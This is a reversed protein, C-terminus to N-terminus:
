SEETEGAPAETEATEEAEALDAEAVEEEADGAEEAEKAPVIGAAVNAQEVADEESRAVNATIGVIVEPHLALKVQHLGLTKIPKDLRVQSRSLTCGEETVAVAIDRANVSGYLQGVDSAARVLIVSTDRIKDAVARAEEKRHLNDAQLQAKQTEFYALNDKSARLAKGKPLLFNRAYGPKVSVVDGMQGLKEVRELLIIDM